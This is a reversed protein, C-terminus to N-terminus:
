KHKESNFVPLYCAQIVNFGNEARNCLYLEADERDPRHFLEWATGGDLFFRAMKM